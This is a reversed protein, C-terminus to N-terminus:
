MTPTCRSREAVNGGNLFSGTLADGNRRYFDQVVHPFQVPSHVWGTISLSYEWTTIKGGVAGSWDRLMADASARAKEDRLEALGQPFNRALMVELNPPFTCGAPVPLTPYNGDPPRRKKKVAVDDHFEVPM